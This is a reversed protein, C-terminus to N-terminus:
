KNLSAPFSETWNWKMCLLEQSLKHIRGMVVGVLCQKKFDTWTKMIMFWM